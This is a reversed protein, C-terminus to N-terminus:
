RAGSTARRRGIVAELTSVCRSFLENAEPSSEFRSREEHRETDAARRRATGVGPSVAQVATGARDRVKQVPERCPVLDSEHIEASRVLRRQIRLERRLQSMGLLDRLTSRPADSADDPPTSPVEDV